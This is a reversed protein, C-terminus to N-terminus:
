RDAPPWMSPIWRDPLRPARSPHEWDPILTIGGHPERTTRTSAPIAPPRLAAYASLALALISAILAVTAKM